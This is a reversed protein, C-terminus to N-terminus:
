SSAAKLAAAVGHYAPKQTGGGTLLGYQDGGDAPNAGDDVWTYLYIAGIWSTSRAQLIAQTIDTSQAAEGVGDPGSSPAGFETIWIKKGGDGHSALIDRISPNTQNMQSWASWTEYTDPSAPFSYPHVGLADFSGKAGNAYMAKLFDRSNYNTGDTSAPALGGSIVFASRNVKKIAAYAAKLDATYAQPNPAPQWFEAINPENWIEFTGVGQPAYRAAVKAAYAAYQASSAPQPSSDGSAGPVAAWPPCGDIVLDVSMGATLISNVAQDVQGWNFTGPGDPQVEAWSADVRVSNVGIAKMAALQSTQASATENLLAPDSIGYPRGKPLAPPSKRPTATGSPSPPAGLSPTAAPSVAESNSSQTGLYVGIVVLSAVIPLLVVMVRYRREM